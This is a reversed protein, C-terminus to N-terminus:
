SVYKALKKDPPMLLQSYFVKSAAGFGMFIIVWKFSKGIYPIWVILEFLLLGMFIKLFLNQKQLFNFKKELWKVALLSSHIYGFVFFLFYITFQLPMLPIGVISLAMIMVIPVVLFLSIFGWIVCGLPHNHIYNEVNRQYIPAVYYGLYAFILLSLIKILAFLLRTKDNSLFEGFQTNKLKNFVMDWSEESLPIGVNVKKGQILAGEDTQVHGGLANLEKIIEATGFLHVEGGIIILRDVRGRIDASGGIVVVEELYEGEEVVLHSGMVVRKKGESLVGVLSENQPLDAETKALLVQLWEKIHQESNLSPHYGVLLAYVKASQPLVLPALQESTLIEMEFKKLLQTLEEQNEGYSTTIREVAVQGYGMKVNMELPTAAFCMFYTIFVGILTSFFSM